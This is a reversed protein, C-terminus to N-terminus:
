PTRLTRRAYAKRDFAAGGDTATFRQILERIAPSLETEQGAQKQKRKSQAPTTGADSNARRGM